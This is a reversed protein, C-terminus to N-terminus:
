SNEIKPYQNYILKLVNLDKYVAIKIRLLLKSALCGPKHFEDM